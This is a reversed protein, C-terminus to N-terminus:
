RTCFSPIINRILLLVTEKKRRGTNQIVRLVRLFLQKLQIVNRYLTDDSDDDAIDEKLQKGAAHMTDEQM